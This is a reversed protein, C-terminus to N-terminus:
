GGYKKKLKTNLGKLSAIEKKQRAVTEELTEAPPEPKATAAANAALTDKLLQRLDDDPTAAIEPPIEPTVPVSHDPTISPNDIVSAEELRNAFDVVWAYGSYILTGLRRLLAKLIRFVPRLLLCVIWVGVLCVVAIVAYLAYTAVIVLANTSEVTENTNDLVDKVKPLIRKNELGPRAEVEAKDLTTIVAINPTADNVSKRNWAPLTEAPPPAMPELTDFEAATLRKVGEQLGALLEAAYAEVNGDFGEMRCVLTDAPLGEIEHKPTQIIVCPTKVIRAAAVIDSQTVDEVHVASFKCKTPDTQPQIPDAIARLKESKAWADLLAKCEPLNERSYFLTCYFRDNEMAPLSVAQAYANAMNARISGDTSVVCDGRLIIEAHTHAEDLGSNEEEPKAAIERRPLELREQPPTSLPQHTTSLTQQGSDSGRNALCEDSDVAAVTPQTEPERPQLKAAVPKKVPTAPKAAPACQGNACPVTQIVYRRQANAEVAALWALAFMLIITLRKM